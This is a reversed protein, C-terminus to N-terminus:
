EDVNKRKLERKVKMHVNQKSEDRKYGEEGEESQSEGTKNVCKM